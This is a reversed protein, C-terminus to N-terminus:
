GFTLGSQPSMNAKSSSRLWKNVSKEFPFILDRGAWINERGDTVSEDRNGDGGFM